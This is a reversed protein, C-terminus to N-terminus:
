QAARELVLLADEWGAPTAFRQVGTNGFVGISASEGTRPDIWCAQIRVASLKNMNVSFSTTDASYVM